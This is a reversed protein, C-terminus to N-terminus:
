GLLLERIQFLGTVCCQRSYGPNVGRKSDEAGSRRPIVEGLVWDLLTSGLAWFVFTPEAWSYFFLSAALLIHNRWTNPAFRYLAYVGPFFIFLFLPSNFLM